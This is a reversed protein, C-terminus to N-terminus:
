VSRLHVLLLSCVTELLDGAADRKFSPERSLGFDVVTSVGPVSLSSEAIDTALIIRRQQGEIWTLVRDQEEPPLAGHLPLVHLTTNRQM